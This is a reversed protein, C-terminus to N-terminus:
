HRNRDPPQAPAAEVPKLGFFAKTLRRAKRHISDPIEPQDNPQEIAEEETCSNQDKEDM